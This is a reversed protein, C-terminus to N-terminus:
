LRSGETTRPSSAVSHQAGTNSVLRVARGANRVLTRWLAPALGALAADGLAFTNLLKAVPSSLNLWDRDAPPLVSAFPQAAWRYPSLELHVSRPSRVHWPKVAGQAHIIPPLPRFAHALRAAVSFGDENFCQAIDNGQSLLGLPISAFLNSGLLAALPDQDGMLWPPRENWPRGQAQLYVPDALLAAWAVLLPLHARSVRLVCSNLGREIHRGSGLDWALTRLQSGPNRVGLPEEAAVLHASDFKELLGHIPASLLLDSDLWLVPHDNESLAEILVAPKVNWGTSHRKRRDVAVNANFSHFETQVDTPVILRIRWSPEFRALSELLLKVGVLDSLRDEYIIVLPHSM